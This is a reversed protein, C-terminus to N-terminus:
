DSSVIVKAENKAENKRLLPATITGQPPNPVGVCVAVYSKKIRHQQLQELLEM